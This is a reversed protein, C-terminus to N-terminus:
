CTWGKRLSRGAEVAKAYVTPLGAIADPALWLIPGDIPPEDSVRTAAVTLELQFHTFAHRVPKDSVRWDSPFPLSPASDERWETGPLALMGGLLGGPQRRLLAVAGDHEIWWVTGRRTPRVRRVKPAPFADTMGKLQASCLGAVPCDMCRPRRPTCITAGLDMLGQAFDGPRDPPVLAQLRPRLADKLKPPPVPCAFVRALVREVNGDVVAVPEGFAIAAVAAATYAGIGPLRALAEATQPFGSEAIQRAAAALNRARAYYGLGAWADLLEAEPAAALADVTPFRALFAQYRPGATAVTTQQLMIEAIWVRYPDAYARSGPPVRWPLTRAHADYWALVHGALEAQRLAVETRGNGAVGRRQCLPLPHCLRSWCRFKGPRPPSHRNSVQQGVYAPLGKPSETERLPLKHGVPPLDYARKIGAPSHRLHQPGPPSLRGAPNEGDADLTRKRCLQLMNRGLNDLPAVAEQAIARNDPQPEDM